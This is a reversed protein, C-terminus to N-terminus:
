ADFQEPKIAEAELKEDDDDVDCNQARDSDSRAASAIISSLRESM